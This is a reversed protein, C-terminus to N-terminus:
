EKKLIEVIDGKHLHQMVYSFGCKKILWPVLRAHKSDLVLYVGAPIKDKVEQAHGLVGSTSKVHAFPVGDDDEFWITVL